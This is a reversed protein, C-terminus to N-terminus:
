TAGKVLLTISTELTAIKGCITWLINALFWIARLIYVKLTERTWVMQYPLTNHKFFFNM